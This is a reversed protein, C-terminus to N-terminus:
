YWKRQRVEVGLDAGVQRQFANLDSLTSDSNRFHYPYVIRPRFARVAGAAQAVTMTFPQNMCVFAVDIGTLAKMEAIDGTDGSFYARRGGLGVVYGNGAGKPHNANYAPIADVSLGLVNTSAGNSLPITIAKLATSLSAYVAAPAILVTGDKKVAGLTTADFHDGHTHTVLILDARPFGTYLGAGGVPDVYVTRGNWQFLLSAHNVPHFVADGATTDLHDGTLAAGDELTRVRFFRAEPRPQLGDVFDVAAAGAFTSVAQWTGLDSSAELRHRRGVESAVRLAVTGNTRVSVSDIRPLIQAESGMLGGALALFPIWRPLVVRAFKVPGPIM